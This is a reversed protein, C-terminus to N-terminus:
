PSGPRAYPNLKPQLVIRRGQHQLVAGDPTIQEVVAAEGDLSQGEVYKRGNIFVLREAPIESYVLVDLTLRGLAPPSAPQVARGSGADPVPAPAPATAPPAVPDGGPRLAPAPARDVVAPVSSRADVAPARGTAPAEPADEPAPDRRLGDGARVTRTTQAPASARPRGPPAVGPPREVAAGPVRAPATAHSEPARELAPAPVEPVASARGAPADAPAAPPLAAERVPDPRPPAWSLSYIVVASLAVAGAAIAWAWHPRRLLEVGGHATALSPVRPVQRDHEAKRLADLIYSV